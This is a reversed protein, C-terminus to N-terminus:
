IGEPYEKMVIKLAKDLRQQWGKDNARLYDLILPDIRITKQVKTPAKQKGRGRKDVVKYQPSAMMEPTIEFADPDADIGTQIELDEEDTPLYIDHKNLM